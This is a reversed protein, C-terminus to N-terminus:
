ITAVQVPLGNPAVMRTQDTILLGRGPISAAPQPAIRVGLLEGDGPTPQLLLGRRHRRVDTAIGRFSVMLDDARATVVVASHHRSVLDTVADGTATDTFQEADDLLILDGDFDSLLRTADAGKDARVGDGQPFTVALGRLGAWVTLPSRAPAAILMRLGASVAQAAITIVATSRGSRPPGTILFRSASDFVDAWVEEATDGGVGLLCGTPVQDKTGALEALRVTAPLTRVRIAPGHRAPPQSAAIARLAARQGAPSPDTDLLALQIELGDELDIAQGPRPDAPLAAPALGAMAYDNRDTMRLLLKRGLASAIRVGLAARDGTILLTFGAAPSDRLLRLVIEASRGGDHTDSLASLGDWGDIVILVAPLETGAELAEAFSGVGLDALARQRRDLEDLLLNLLRAMPVADDRGVAAGTHPLDALGALGHGACDLSYIHLEDASLQCTAQAVFTRLGTTRGSRPGGIFAISGGAALDHVAAFQAQRAPDDTLGFSVEFRHTTDRTLDATSVHAPLPPLWPATASQHGFRVAALSIADCVRRLDGDDARTAAAPRRNWDDLETVTVPAEDDALGTVRATQFEVLGRTLRAFARGPHHQPIRSAADDALVDSSEGADTVRLAVRLAMNAKIEPSVVGAPRQTALVLHVGLSRGRQAVGILGSLFSPFEEALSAFEDVVLVLRALPQAAARTSRRYADLDTVGVEAFAAERRRLEANLSVLVRRTLRPDLDTVLGVTHPLEACEAFAAGGKYDILLFSLERPPSRVALGVVVSRLLESKGSGTTGAILSHPGDRALDFEIVGEASVGIPTAASGAGTWREALAAPALDDPHTIDHLGLLSVESPLDASSDVHAPRLPALSRALRDCWALPVREATVSTLIERGSVAIVLASGTDATTVATAQCSPPLLRVEIDICVATIGVAPGHELVFRLGPVSAMTSVRDILLVTWPGPWATGVAASRRDTVMRVLDGVLQRHEAADVAITPATEPVWRLWRWDESSGDLLAAITLDAPSHMALLQGLVWRAAGRALPLPGALGLAGQTLPVTAPVSSVLLGQIPAAARTAYTEAPRDAVGLRVLLFGSDEAPREWLRCDPGTVTHLIAAADPFQRRRRRAEADLRGSLLVEAAAESRAHRLRQQRSTRRWDWRQSVAGALLTVPTLLAFALFQSSHMALALGVGLGTPLLAALWQTKPRPEVAPAAPFEVAETLGTGTIRPPTNVRVRGDADSRTAAPPEDATTACLTSTGLTFLTGAPLRVPEPGVKEDGLWTGNTSGLDRLWLGHADVRVEAHRRSIDPDEVTIDATGDRGIVHTARALDILQGCDPGGVVRLHLMSVGPSHRDARSGLTLVDGSRLGADGLLTGSSVLQGSSFVAQNATAGLQKMLEPRLTLMTTGPPGTIELDQDPRGSVRATLTVHM